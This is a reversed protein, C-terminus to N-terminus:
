PCGCTLLPGSVYSRCLVINNQVTCSLATSHHLTFSLYLSTSCTTKFPILYLILRDEVCSLFIICFYPYKTLHVFSFLCPIPHILPSIFFLSLFIFMKLCNRYTVSLFTKIENNFIRFTNSSIYIKMVCPVGNLKCPDYGGLLSTDTTVSSWLHKPVRRPIMCFYIVFTETVCLPCASPQLAFSRQVHRTRVRV